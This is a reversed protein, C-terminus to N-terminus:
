AEEINILMEERNHFLNIVLELLNPHNYLHTNLNTRSIEYLHTAVQTILHTSESDSEHILFDSVPEKDHFIGIIGNDNELKVSGRVVFFFPSTSRTGKEM